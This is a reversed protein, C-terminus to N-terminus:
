MRGEVLKSGDEEGDLADFVDLHLVAPDREPGQEVVAYEEGDDQRQRRCKAKVDKSGDDEHTECAAKRRENRDKVCTM